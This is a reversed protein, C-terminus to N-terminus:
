GVGVRVLDLARVIEGNKWRNYQMKWVKKYKIQALIRIRIEVSRRKVLRNTGTCYHLASLYSGCNTCQVFSAKIKAKEVYNM